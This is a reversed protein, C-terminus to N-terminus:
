RISRNATGQYRTAAPMSSAISVAAPAAQHGARAAARTGTTLAKDARGSLGLGACRVRRMATSSITSARAQRARALWALPGSITRPASAMARPIENMLGSLM